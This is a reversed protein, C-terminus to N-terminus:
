PICTNAGLPSGWHHVTNIQWFGPIKREEATYFTRIPIRSQDSKERQAQPIGQREQSVPRHVRSKHNGTKERNEGHPSIRALLRHVENAAAYPSRANERM